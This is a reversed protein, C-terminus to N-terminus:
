RAKDWRGEDHISAEIEGARAKAMLVAELVDALILRRRRDEADAQDLTDYRTITDGRHSTVTWAGSAWKHLVHRKTAREWAELAADVEPGNPDIDSM